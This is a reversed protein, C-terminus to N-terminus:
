DTRVFYWEGEYIKESFGSLEIVRRKNLPLRKPLWIRLRNGIRQTQVLIPTLAMELAFATPRKTKRRNLGEIPDASDNALARRVRREWLTYVLAAMLLVYGLAALREPKKICFSGVWAPNKIFKFIREVNGQGKYRELIYKAPHKKKDMLTTILVFLACLERERQYKEPNLTLTGSLHYNTNTQVFEGKKPRGRKKRKVKENRSEIEWTIDHYPMTHERFYKKAEIEADKRCAFPRKSLKTLKQENKNLEKKVAKDLAKLKRKDKHDSHVVVFRYTRREIEGTTDWAKYIAANKEESLKGIPEWRVNELSRRKLKEELNFTGPLRSIIDINEQATLDLNGGTVLASDAIYLLFEDADKKLISRLNRVWRGNLTKDSENGSAVEAIVPVGDAETGVGFILQKLDPRHDKPHGFTIFPVGMEEIQDDYAGYFSKSTTDGHIVNTELSHVRLASSVVTSFVKQPDAAWLADLVRAARDDNIEDLGIDPKWPILLPLSKDEFFHDMRYMKINVDGLMHHIFAAVYTGVDIKTQSNYTEVVNNIVKPFNLENMLQGLVPYYDARSPLIENVAVENERSIRDAAPMTHYVCYYYKLIIPSM